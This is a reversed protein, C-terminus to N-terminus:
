RGFSLDIGDAMGIAVQKQWEEDLMNAADIPNSVFGVEILVAPMTVHRLVYYASDDPMEKLLPDRRANTVSLTLADVFNQAIRTIATNDEGTVSRFYVRTGHVSADDYTDAHISIFFDPRHLNAFDTREWLSFLYAENKPADAPIQNTDHTMIVNYGRETLLDRLKLGISLTIDCENKEALHESSTGPDEFGHGPDICITIGSKETSQDATTDPAQTEDPADTKETPYTIPDPLDVQESARHAFVTILIVSTILFLAFCTLLAIRRMMKQKKKKKYYAQRRMAEERSIPPRNSRQPPPGPYM